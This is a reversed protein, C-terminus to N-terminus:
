VERFVTQEQPKFFLVFTAWGLLICAAGILTPLNLSVTLALGALLPPIVTGIAQVSQQIGM